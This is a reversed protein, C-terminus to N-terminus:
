RRGFTPAVQSPPETGMKVGPHRPPGAAASQNEFVGKFQAVCVDGACWEDQFHGRRAFFDTIGNSTRPDM